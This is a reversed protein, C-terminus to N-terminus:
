GLALTALSPIRIAQGSELDFPWAIENWDALVWWLEAKGLYRAALLDLRDGEEVTHFRDDPRPSMDLSARAGLFEEVGDRYLISAAYRSSRSIM